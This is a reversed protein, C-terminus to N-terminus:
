LLTYIYIEFYEYYIWCILQLSVRLFCIYYIIYFKILYIIGDVNMKEAHISRGRKLKACVSESKTVYNPMITHTHTHTHRETMMIRVNASMCTPRWRLVPLLKDLYTTNLALLLFLHIASWLVIIILLWPM